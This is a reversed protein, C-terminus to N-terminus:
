VFPYAHPRVCRDCIPTGTRLAHSPIFIPNGVRKKAKGMFVASHHTADDVFTLVYKGGGTSVIHSEALDSHVLNLPKVRRNSHPLFPTRSHKGMICSHCPCQHNENAKDAPDLHLDAIAKEGSKLLTSKSVHTLREYHDMLLVIEQKIGAFLANTGGDVEPNDDQSWVCLGNKIPSHIKFDGDSMTCGSKTILSHLGVLALTNLSMLGCKLGPVHLVRKLIRSKGSSNNRRWWTPDYHPIAGPITSPIIPM